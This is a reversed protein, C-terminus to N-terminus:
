DNRPSHRQELLQHVGTSRRGLPSTHHRIIFCCSPNSNVSVGTKYFFAKESLSVTTLSPITELTTHRPLLFSSSKDTTTLSTLNLLNRMILESYPDDRFSFANAGLQISYLSPLNELVVSSTAVFSNQGVGLTQLHPLG